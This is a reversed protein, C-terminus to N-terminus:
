QPKSEDAGLTAATEVITQLASVNAGGTGVMTLGSPGAVLFDPADAGPKFNSRSFRAAWQHRGDSDPNLTGACVERVAAEVRERAEDDDGAIFQGAYNIPRLTPAFRDIRVPTDPDIAGVFLEHTAGELNIKAPPWGLVDRLSICNIAVCPWIPHSFPAHVYWGCVNLELPPASGHKARQQALIAALDARWARGHPGSIDAPSDPLQM